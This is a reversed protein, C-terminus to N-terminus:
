QVGQEPSPSPCSAQRAQPRPKEAWRNPDVTGMPICEAVQPDFFMLRPRGKPPFAFDFAGLYQWGEGSDSVIPAIDFPKLTIKYDYGFASSVALRSGDIRYVSTRARHAWDWGEIMETEYSSGYIVSLYRGSDRAENNSLFLDLRLNFGYQDFEAVSSYRPVMLYYGVYLSVALAPVVAIGAMIALVLLSRGLFRKSLVPFEFTRVTV